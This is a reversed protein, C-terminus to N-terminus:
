GPYRCTPVVSAVIADHRSRSPLAEFAEAGMWKFLAIALEEAPNSNFNLQFTEQPDISNFFDPRPLSLAIISDLNGQVRIM